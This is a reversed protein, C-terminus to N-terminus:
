ARMLLQTVECLRLGKQSAAVRTNSAGHEFIADDLAEGFLTLARQDNRREEAIAGLNNLMMVVGGLDGVDRRLQLSQARAGIVLSREGRWVM